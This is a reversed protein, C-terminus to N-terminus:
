SKHKIKFPKKILNYLKKVLVVFVAIELIFMLLKFECLFNIAFLLGVIITTLSTIIIFAKKRKHIKRVFTDV